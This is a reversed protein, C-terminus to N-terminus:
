VADDQELSEPWDDVEAIGMEMCPIPFDDLPCVLTWRPTVQTCEPDPHDYFTRVWHKGADCWGQAVGVKM